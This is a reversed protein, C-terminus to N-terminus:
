GARCTSSPYKTSLVKTRHKGVPIHAKEAKRREAGRSLALRLLAIRVNSPNSCAHDRELEKAIRVKGHRSTREDNRYAAVAAEFAPTIGRRPSKPASSRDSVDRRGVWKAITKRTTGFQRALGSQSHKGSAYLEQVLKRQTQTLASNAHQKM